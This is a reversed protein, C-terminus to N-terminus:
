EFPPGKLLPDPGLEPSENTAETNVKRSRTTKRRKQELDSILDICENQFERNEILTKKFKDKDFKDDMIIDLLNSMHAMFLEPPSVLGSGPAKILTAWYELGANIVAEKRKQKSEFQKNIYNNWTNFGSTIVAGAIAGGITGIVIWAEPSM